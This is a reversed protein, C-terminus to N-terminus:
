SVQAAPRLAPAPLSARLRVLAPVAAAALAALTLWLVANGVALLSTLLVPAVVQAAGWSLQFLASSRGEAGPPAAAAAVATATPAFAAEAVAMTLSALLILTIAAPPPVVTLPALAAFSGAFVLAAGILVRLRSWRVLWRTVPQQGAVIAATGLGIAVGPVWPPGHLVDHVLIPLIAYKSASALTFAVHTACFGVYGRHRLVHRWSGTRRRDRHRDGHGAGTGGAPLRVMLLAAVAFSAANLYALLHYTLPSDLDPLLALTAAGLGAGAFRGITQTGLVREAQRGTTLAHVLPANATWFMRDGVGVVASVLTVQWGHTVLPYCGFALLRILNSAVVLSAAGTRDMVTGVLPGSALGLLAGLSLAAGADVLAIGQGHVLFLLAFPMWLGSGVADIVTAVM